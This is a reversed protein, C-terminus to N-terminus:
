WSGTLMAPECRRRSHRWTKTLCTRITWDWGELSTGLLDGAADRGICLCRNTPLGDTNVFTRRLVPGPVIDLVVVGGNTALYLVSDTGVMGSVFNTNTYSQWDGTGGAALLVILLAAM